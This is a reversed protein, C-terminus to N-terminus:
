WSSSWAAPITTAVGVNKALTGATSLAISSRICGYQARLYTSPLTGGGLRGAPSMM